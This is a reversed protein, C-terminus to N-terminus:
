VIGLPIKERQLTRSLPALQSFPGLSSTTGKIAVPQSWKKLAANSINGGGTGNSLSIFLGAPNERGGLQLPHWDYIQDGTEIHAITMTLPHWVNYNNHGIDPNEKM